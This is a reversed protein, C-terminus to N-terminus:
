SMGEVRRRFVARTVARTLGIVSLSHCSNLSDPLLDNVAGIIEGGMRFILNQALKTAPLRSFLFDLALMPQAPFEVNDFIDFSLYTHTAALAVEVGRSEVLNVPIKQGIMFDFLLNM